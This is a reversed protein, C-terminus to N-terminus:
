KYPGKPSSHVLDALFGARCRDGPWADLERAVYPMCKWFLKSESQSLGPVGSDCRRGTDMLCKAGELFTLKTNETKSKQIQFTWVALNTKITNCNCLWKLVEPKSAKQTTNFSPIITYSFRGQEYEKQASPLTLSIEIKFM